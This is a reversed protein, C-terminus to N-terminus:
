FTKVFRLTVNDCRVMYLGEALDDVSIEDDPGANVTRVLEGLINYIQIESNPEIGLIRISEKAPNPYVSLNSAENEDVGLGFFAVLTMDSNMTIIRPNETNEDSWKTFVYGQNPFAMITATSGEVYVGGGSVTGESTNCILTLTHTVVSSETFYATYTADGTM